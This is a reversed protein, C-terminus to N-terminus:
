SNDPLFAELTALLDHEEFDNTIVAHGISQLLIFFIKGDKAKKDVAMNELMDNVTVGNPLLSPLGARHVLSAVREYGHDDLWGKRRSFDAAMVMGLGVAEGHLLGQYHQATEIAHGFTHGLNLLARVGQEKEDEQVIEAKNRCSVEIAYTLAETDRSLLREINNELWSFFEADRILGYKIVEAIGAILQRDDLTDLVTTDSIVAIPQHFAGIMNKGLAHNVATKGGVSSDVRALLTTPIQIFPVGRQYCAAAFGTLDGVM